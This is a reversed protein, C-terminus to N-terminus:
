KDVGTQGLEVGIQEVVEIYPRIMGSVLPNDGTTGDFIRSRIM